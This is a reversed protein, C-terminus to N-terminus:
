SAYKITKTRGVYHPLSRVTVKGGVRLVISRNENKQKLQITSVLCIDPGWMKFTLTM